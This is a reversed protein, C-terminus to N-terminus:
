LVENNIEKEKEVINLLESIDIKSFFFKFDNMNGSFHAEFSFRMKKKYAKYLKEVMEVFKKDCNKIILDAM